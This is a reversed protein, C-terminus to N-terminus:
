RLYKVTLTPQISFSIKQDQNRQIWVLEFSINHFIFKLLVAFILPVNFNWCHVFDIWIKM